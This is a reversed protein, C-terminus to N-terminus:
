LGRQFAKEKSSELSAPPNRNVSVYCHAQGLNQLFRECSEQFARWPPSLLMHCSLTPETCTCCTVGPYGKHNTCSGRVWIGQLIWEVLELVAYAGCSCKLGIFCRTSSSSTGAAFVNSPLGSSMTCPFCQGQWGVVREQRSTHLTDQSASSWVWSPLMTELRSTSREGM